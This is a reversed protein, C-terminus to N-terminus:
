ASEGRLTTTEVRISEVLDCVMPEPTEVPEGSPPLPELGAARRVNVFRM